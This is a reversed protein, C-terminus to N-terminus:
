KSQLRVLREANSPLDVRIEEIVRQVILYVLSKRQKEFEKAMGKLLNARSIDLQTQFREIQTAERLKMQYRRENEQRFADIESQVERSTQKMLQLRKTRATAIMEAARGEALLLSQLRPEMQISRASTRGSSHGNPHTSPAPSISRSSEQRAKGPNRNSSRRPDAM